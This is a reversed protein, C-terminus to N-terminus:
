EDDDDNDDDNDSIQPALYFNLHGAQMKYSILIPIGATLNLTVRDSLTAAKSTQSLFKTNFGLSVPEEVAVDISKSEEGVNTSPKLTISGSGVEGKASFRVGDKAADIEVSTALAGLDRIIRSYEASPLGVVASYDAEPISLHDQEINMLKLNFESIRDPNNGDEFVLTLLDGNDEARLTMVDSNNATKLVKLLSEVNIGLPFARDCRYSSFSGVDLKMSVLAIHSEDM